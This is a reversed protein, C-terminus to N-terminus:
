GVFKNRKGKIHDRIPAAQEAQWRAGEIWGNKESWALDVPTFTLYKAEAGHEDFELKRRLQDTLSDSM